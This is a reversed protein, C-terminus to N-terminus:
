TSIIKGPLNIKTNPARNYKKKFQYILNSKAKTESMAYTSGQWRFSIEKDFETVPGDYTYKKM